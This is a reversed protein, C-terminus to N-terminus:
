IHESPNRALPSTRHPSPTACVCVQLFMRVAHFKAAKEEQHGLTNRLERSEDNSLMSAHQLHEPLAAVLDLELAKGRSVLMNAISDHGHLM